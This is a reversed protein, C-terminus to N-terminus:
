FLSTESVKESVKNAILLLVVNIVNTFLGVAAGYSYDATLLGRYYVFTGIVESVEVNLDNRMLLAKDGGVSMIQGVRMILMIVITPMITPINIHIIRQIRSAGDLTAAEHLGPDVSSLAAIYVIAGWGLSQWVGSWVYMHPFAADETMFSYKEMGLKQMISNVFGYQPSFFLSMMSILVVMSIFHPAYMVTQAIKKYKKSSLENFFLAMIIPLPFTALSYLSLVLTNRIIRVASPTTLFDKFYKLGVWKSEWISKVGNYRKFAIVIGGMPIYSFIIYYIVVPIVFVYLWFYRQIHEKLPMKSRDLRRPKTLQKQM